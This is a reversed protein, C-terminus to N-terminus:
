KVKPTTGGRTVGGKDIREDGIGGECEMAVTEKVLEIVDRYTNFGEVDPELLDPRLQVDKEMLAHAQLHSYFKQLSPNEFNRFDFDHITLNNVLMKTLAVLESSVPSPETVTKDGSFNVIDDSFPLIIMHFGPPTQFHDEEDYHEQQPFLAAFRLEQNNRPVLKVIGVLKQESLESILADFYQSSGSIHEEDPYLFYSTRLNHYPKILSKPKFGILTM